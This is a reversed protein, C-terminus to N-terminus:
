DVPRPSLQQIWEAALTEMTAVCGAPGPPPYFHVDVTRYHGDVPLNFKYIVKSDTVTRFTQVQRGGFGITEASRPLMDAMARFVPSDKQERATAVVQSVPGDQPARTQLISIVAHRSPRDGRDIERELDLKYMAEHVPEASRVAYGTPLRFDFVLPMDSGDFAQSLPGPPPCDDQSPTATAMRAPAPQAAATDANASHAQVSEGSPGCGGILLAMALPLCARTRNRM